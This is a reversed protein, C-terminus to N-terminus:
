DSNKYIVAGDEIKYIYSNEIFKSDINNLDTTTVITQIDRDLYNIVRNRKEIDLESFLDDLLLVPNEGCIENFVDIEALKLSLIAMKLQGQSGYLLLDNNALKFGFDDRHPGILSSGYVVERDFANDLKNKMNEYIKDYDDIDVNTIYDLYLGDYDSIKRFINTIYKNILNIFNNRYQYIEVSLSIFKDNLISFYDLNYKGSKIIKLYENRQRLIVNFENLLNIYREYLQSIEINLFKRRNGPGEKIIRLNDPSFVIVKLNGIFESHKKIEKNNITLKKGLENLIININKIKNDTKIKADLSTFVEERRMINKDSASLFSKTISLYYISELINTKGQANNGIIINLKDNFSIDLKSYNRFNKLSLNKIIM